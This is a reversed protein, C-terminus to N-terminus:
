MLRVFVDHTANTTKVVVYCTNDAALSWTSSDSEKTFTGETNNHTGAIENFDEDYLELTFDTLYSGGGTGNSVFVELRDLAVTKSNTIKVVVPTLAETDFTDSQLMTNGSQTSGIFDDVVVGTVTERTSGGAVEAMKFELGHLLAAPVPTTLTIKALMTEGPTWVSPDEKAYHSIFTITADQPAGLGRLTPKYGNSVFNQRGGEDKTKLYLEALFETAMEPINGDEYLFSLPTVETLEAMGDVYLGVEDGVTAYEHQLRFKEIKLVEYVKDPNDPTGTGPLVISDGVKVTGQKVEVVIIYDPEIYFRDTAQLILDDTSLVTVKFEDAYYDEDLEFGECKVGGIYFSEDCIQANEQTYVGPATNWNAELDILAIKVTVTDTGGHSWTVDQTFTFYHTGDADKVYEGTFDLIYPMVTIKGVSGDTDYSFKYNGKDAGRLEVGEDYDFSDLDDTLIYEDYAVDYNQWGDGYLWVDDGAVIGDAATLDFSTIIGGDYTVEIDLLNLAKPTVTLMGGMDYKDLGSVKQNAFQYNGADAGSLFARDIGADTLSIDDTKDIFYYSGAHYDFEEECTLVLVDGSVVGHETGLAYAIFGVGDYVKTLELYNLTKPVINATCTTLDLEYNTYNDGDDADLGAGTVAAGVNKNAFTICVKIGDAVDGALIGNAAGLPVEFSNTGAYTLDVSLNSLVKKAITFEKEASVGAYTTSEAIIVKVKYTGANVPKADLKTDGQYWEITVVGDSNTEYTPNALEVKDYTKSLDQINALTGATKDTEFYETDSKAGCVCSKYYQAKTTATAAAKLYESSAVTKDFVHAAEGKKDGCVSCAYYHTTDGATLTTGHAHTIERTAGCVNCTTDCANDFVHPEVTRTAGCVNCATDCANDYAHAGVTREANCVNCATDCANDYVHAGVTRTYGCTDCTDDCDNAYCHAALDSIEEEHKCTAEHWHNTADSSWETAYSHDHLTIPLVIACTTGAVVVAATTIAIAKHAVSWKWVKTATSKTWTWIKGFFAKM